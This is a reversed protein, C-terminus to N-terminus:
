SRVEEQEVAPEQPVAAGSGNLPSAARAGTRVDRHQLVVTYNDRKLSNFLDEALVVSRHQGGTCGIAINLYAKGEQEYQPLAFRVLDEMRSEFEQTRADAHVYEAVRADRGDLARLSPVYHPNALFRVDFVLDADIPLGHKFGFSTVTILLPPHSLEAYTAHIVDRLQAATLASTDIIHDCVERIPELMEREAEVADVIGGSHWDSHPGGLTPHPRRTEKYRQVLVHDSADLFLTEVHVGRAGIQKLAAPVEALTPGTRADTVVAAREYGNEMCFDVYQPLLRPPINDSTFYGADEFCHLALTKGAGSTGTILVFRM